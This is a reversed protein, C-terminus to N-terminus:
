RHRLTSLRLEAVASHVLRIANRWDPLHALAAATHIYRAPTSISIAPIGENALHMTGTDTGGGGPQRIQYPIGEREATEIFHRLLAPHAITRSDAAYIAPGGRLVANYQTNETGDWIPLDQAPTCDVAIAVDPNLRRAAIGAGRLGVEEQVTFAAAIEINDPPHELLEILAVVGLRDDLAKGWIASGERRFRTAFTARDGPKAKELAADKSSVGIDIAMSEVKVTQKLEDASALHVPKGGIIGDIRDEGVWVPKGLLQRPDLGGVADFKHLGDKSVEVIMFGVEDMHAALMVRMRRRGAGRRFALLNGMADIQIDDVIPEIRRRVLKRVSREDGSVAVAESLESLL